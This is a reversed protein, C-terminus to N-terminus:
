IVMILYQFEVM